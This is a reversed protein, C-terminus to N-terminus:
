MVTIVLWGLELRFFFLSIIAFLASAAFTEHMLRKKRLGM